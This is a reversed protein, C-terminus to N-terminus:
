RGWPGFGVTSPVIPQRGFGTALLGLPWESVM